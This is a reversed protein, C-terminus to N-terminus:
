TDNDFGRKHTTFTFNLTRHHSTHTDQLQWWQSLPFQSCQQSNPTTIWSHSVRSNFQMRKVNPNHVTKYVTRPCHRLIRLSSVTSSSVTFTELKTFTLSSIFEIRSRHFPYPNITHSWSRTFSDTVFLLTLFEWDGECTSHSTGSHTIVYTIRSFEM